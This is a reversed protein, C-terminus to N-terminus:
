SKQKHLTPIQSQSEFGLHLTLLYAENTVIITWEILGSFTKTVPLHTPLKMGEERWCRPSQEDSEVQEAKLKLSFTLDTM